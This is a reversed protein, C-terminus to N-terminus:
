GTCNAGLRAAADQQMSPLAHAYIGLTMEHGLHGLSRYETRYESRDDKGQDLGSISSKPCM